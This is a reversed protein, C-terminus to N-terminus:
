ESCRKVGKIIRDLIEEDSPNPSDVVKRLRIPINDMRYTTGEASIGAAAVPIVVKAVQTTMSRKSDM